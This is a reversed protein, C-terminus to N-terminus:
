ISLWNKALLACDCLKIFARGLVALYLIIRGIMMSWSSEKVWM